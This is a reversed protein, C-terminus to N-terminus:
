IELIEIDLSNDELLLKLSNPHPAGGMRCLMEQVWPEFPIKELGRVERGVFDRKAWIAKAFGIKKQADMEDWKLSKEQPEEYIAIDNDHLVQMLNSRCLQKAQRARIKVPSSEDDYFMITKGELHCLDPTLFHGFFHIHDHTKSINVIWDHLPHGFRNRWKADHFCKAQEFSSGSYNESNKGKAM